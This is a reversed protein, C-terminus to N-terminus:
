NCKAHMSTFIYSSDFTDHIWPCHLLSFINILRPHGEQSLVNNERSDACPTPLRDQRKYTYIDRCNEVSKHLRVTHEISRLCKSTHIAHAHPCSSHGEIAPWALFVHPAGLSDFRLM